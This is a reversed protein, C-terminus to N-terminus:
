MSANSLNSTIISHQRYIRVRTATDKSNLDRGERGPCRDRYHINIALGNPYFVRFVFSAQFLLNIKRVKCLTSIQNFHISVISRVPLFYNNPLRGIKRFYYFSKAAVTTLDKKQSRM